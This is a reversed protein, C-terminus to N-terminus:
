MLIHGGSSCLLPALSLLSLLCAICLVTMDLLPSFGVPSVPQTVCVCLQTAFVASCRSLHIGRCGDMLLTTWLVSAGFTHEVPALLLMVSGAADAPALCLQLFASALSAPNLLHTVHVGDGAAAAASAQCPCHPTQRVGGGQCPLGPPHDDQDNAKDTVQSTSCQSSKPCVHAMHMTWCSYM